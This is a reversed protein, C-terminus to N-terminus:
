LTTLPFAEKIFSISPFWQFTPFDSYNLLSSVLLPTVHLARHEEPAQVTFPVESFPVSFQM